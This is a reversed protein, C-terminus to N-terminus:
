ELGHPATNPVSRHYEMSVLLRELSEKERSPLASRKQKHRSLVASRERRVALGRALHGQWLLHERRVALGRALRGHWLRGAFAAASLRTLEDWLLRANTLFYSPAQPTAHNHRYCRRMILGVRGVGPLASM